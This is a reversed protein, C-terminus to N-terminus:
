PQWELPYSTFDGSLWNKESAIEAIVIDNRSTGNPSLGKIVIAHAPYDTYDYLNVSVMSNGVGDQVWPSPMISGTIERAVKWTEADYVLAYGTQQWLLWRGDPSWHALFPYFSHKYEETQRVVERWVQENLDYLWLQPHCTSSSGRNEDGPQVLLYRGDRSWDIAALSVCGPWQEQPLPIQEQRSGDLTVLWLETRPPTEQELFRVIVGIDNTPSPLLTMPAYLASQTRLLTILKGTQVEVAYPVWGQEPSVDLFTIWRDNASWHPAGVIQFVRDSVLRQATGNERVIGVRASVGDIRNQQEFVIWAGDNSWRPQNYSYQESQLLPHPITEGAKLLWVEQRPLGTIAEHVVILLAKDVPQPAIPNPQFSLSPILSPIPTQTSPTTNAPATPTTTPEQTSVTSSSRLTVSIPSPLITHPQCSSFFLMSLLMATALVGTLMDHPKNPM